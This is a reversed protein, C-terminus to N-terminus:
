VLGFQDIAISIHREDMIITPFVYNSPTQPPLILPIRKNSFITIGKFLYYIGMFFSGQLM